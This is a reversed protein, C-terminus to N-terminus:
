KAPEGHRLPLPILVTTINDHGGGTLALQTLRKAAEMPQRECDPVAAAIAQADPLYNWLGDSCLLLTGPGPPSLTAIRPRIDEADAGLWRTIAHSGEV